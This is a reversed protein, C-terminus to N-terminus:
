AHEMRKAPCSWCCHEMLQGQVASQKDPFDGRDALRMYCRLTLLVRTVPNDDKIFNLDLARAVDFLGGKCGTTPLIGIDPYRHVILAVDYMGPFYARRQEVYSPWDSPLDQPASFSSILSAIGHAGHFTVWSVNPNSTAGCSAMLRTFQRPHLYGSRPTSSICFKWVCDYALMGESNMFAIVIEFSDADKLYTKMSEYNQQAGIAYSRNGLQPHMVEVGIINFNSPVLEQIRQAEEDLNGAQVKIVDINSTRDGIHRADKIAKNVQAIGALLGQRSDLRHLQHDGSASLCSVIQFFCSLTLLADVGAHHGRGFRNVGLLDAIATLSGRFGHQVLQGLVRVDYLRPFNLRLQHLFTPLELPLHSSGRCGGQLLRLFFGFDYDGHYAIWTVSSNGFPLHSLLGTYVFHPVVGRDRHETLDHGQESLFSIAEGNYKHLEVTFDFNIELAMATFTPEEDVEDEFVFALGMQVVDGGNVYRRLYEYNTKTCGPWCHMNTFADAAFEFDFAIYIRRHPQGFADLVPKFMEPYNGQWVRQVSVKALHHALCRAVLPSMNTADFGDVAKNRVQADALKISCDGEMFPHVDTLKTNGQIADAVVSNDAVKTNGHIAGPVAQVDPKADAVAQIDAVKTNGHIADPVAQVDALKANGHIVDAVAQINALKTNGHIADAVAQVDALKADPADAQMVFGNAAKAFPHVGM